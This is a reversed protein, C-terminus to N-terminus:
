DIKRYCPHSKAKINLSAKALCFIVTLSHKRSFSIEESLVVNTIQCVFCRPLMSASTCPVAVLTLLLVAQPNMAIKM